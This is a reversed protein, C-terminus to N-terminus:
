VIRRLGIFGMGLMLLAMLAMGYQSLTPIGEFFVTNTILCGRNRDGVQVSIASECGTSEVASDFVRESVTCSTSGDFRPFVDATNNEDGNVWWSWYDAGNGAVNTCNLSIKAEDKVGISGENFEWQKGIIVPVPQLANSIACSFQDGAEINEYSCNVSSVTGDDFSTSYGAPAGSETIECDMTGTEFSTVVFVVETFGNQDVVVNAAGEGLQVETPFSVAGPDTITASQSLPLGTNCTLQVDVPAPNDDSFDKTVSFRARSAQAVAPTTDITVNDIAINGELTVNGVFEFRSIGNSLVFPYTTYGGTVPTRCDGASIPVSDDLVGDKDYINLTFPVFPCIDISFSSAADGFDNQFDIQVPSTRVLTGCGRDDVVWLGSPNNGRQDPNCDGQAVYYNEMNTNLYLWDSTWGGLPDAFDEVFVVAHVSPSLAALVASVILAYFTRM